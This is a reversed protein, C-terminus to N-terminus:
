CAWSDQRLPFDKEEDKAMATGLVLFMSMFFLTFKRM